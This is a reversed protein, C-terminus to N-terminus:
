KEKDEQSKRKEAQLLGLKKIVFEVSAANDDLSRKDYDNKLRLGSTKTKESLRKYAKERAPLIVDLAQPPFGEDKVLRNALKENRKDDDTRLYIVVDTDRNLYSSGDTFIGEVVLGGTPVEPNHLVTKAYKEPLTKGKALDITIESIYKDIAQNTEDFLRFDAEALAEVGQQAKAAYMRYAFEYGSEDKHPVAGFVAQAVHPFEKLVIFRLKDGELVLSGYKEGLHRALTTKGSGSRAAVVGKWSTDLREFKKKEPLIIDDSM